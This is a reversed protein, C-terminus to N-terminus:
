PLKQAVDHPAWGKIELHSAKSSCLTVIHFRHSQEAHGLPSLVVSQHAGIIIIGIILISMYKM